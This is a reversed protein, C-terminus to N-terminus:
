AGTARGMGGTTGAVPLVADGAVPADDAVFPRDADGELVALHIRTRVLVIYLLTFAALSAFLAALMTPAMSAASPRLVTAPQHLTRWWVVSLHVIPVQVFAVIGLIASRKARSTPHPTGRRLGLYGLYVLLLLATTVLRPDWTWWVGWVPKGWISGLVLALGTFLTGVEASSAALRDWRDHRTRLWAVSGVLTVAFALYALWAAPVHVYLLRQLDGQLRDPPATFALVLAALVSGAALCSWITTRQAYRELTPEATPRAIM